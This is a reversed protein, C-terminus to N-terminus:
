DVGFEAVLCGWQSRGWHSFNVLDDNAEDCTVGHCVVSRGPSLQWEM